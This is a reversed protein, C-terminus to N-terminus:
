TLGDIFLAGVPGLTSSLLGGAAMGVAFLVSWSLGQLANATVLEDDDVLRPLSARAAPEFFSSMVMRLLLLVQLWVLHGTAALSVMALTVVGRSLHSAVMITKRNMSDALRGAFPASFVHPLTHITFLIGLAVGSQAERTILVALAVMSLWDGLHSVVDSLW